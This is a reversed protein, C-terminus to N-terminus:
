RLYGLSRLSKMQERRLRQRVERSHQSALLAQLRQRDARYQPLSSVDNTAEPDKRLDYVEFIGSRRDIGEMGGDFVAAYPHFNVPTLVQDILFSVPPDDDAPRGAILDGLRSELRGGNAASVIYDRMDTVSVEQEIHRQPVGAGVIGLPVHVLQPFLSNGHLYLRHEGFHEGHDSTVITITRGPLADIKQFLVALSQDLCQAAESYAMRMREARREDMLRNEAVAHSLTYIDKPTIATRPRCKSPIYYADHVDIFNLLLFLPKRRSSRLSSEADAIVTDAAAGCVEHQFAPWFRRLEMLPASRCADIGHGEVTYSSFGRTFGTSENLFSNAVVGVTEYGEADLLVPVATDSSYYQKEFGIGTEAASRGTMASVHAPLTWPAAAFANDFVTGRSLFKQLNPMGKATDARLTDLFIVIVNPANSPTRRVTVSAEAAPSDSVVAAIGLITLVIVAYTLAHRRPWTHHERPAWKFLFASLVWCALVATATLTHSIATSLPRIVRMTVLFWLLGTVALNRAFTRIRDPILTLVLAILAAVGLWVGVCWLWLSPPAYNIGFSADFLRLTVALADLAGCIISCVVVASM